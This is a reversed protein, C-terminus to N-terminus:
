VLVTNETFDDVWTCRLAHLLQNPAERLHPNPIWFPCRLQQAQQAQPSLRFREREAM